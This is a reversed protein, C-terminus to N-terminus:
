KNKFQDIEHSYQVTLSFNEVAKDSRTRNQYNNKLLQSKFNRVIPLNVDVRKKTQDQIQTM